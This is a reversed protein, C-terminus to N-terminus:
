HVIEFICIKNYPYRRVQDDEYGDIWRSLLTEIGVVFRICACTIIDSKAKAYVNDSSAFCILLM